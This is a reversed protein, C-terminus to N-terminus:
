QTTFVSLDNHGAPHLMNSKQSKLDLGLEYYSKGRSLITGGGICILGDNGLYFVAVQGPAIGRLPKDFVVEYYYSSPLVGTSANTTTTTTMPSRLVIECDVLPQLHRIRCKARITSGRSTTSTTTATSINFLEQQKASSMIWNMDEHRIYLRDSYLSPHHTGPCVYITRNHNFKDVVFYKQDVGSLKAGQGITSYVLPSSNIDYTGLICGDEINIITGGFGGDCNSSRRTPPLSTSSHVDDGVNNSDDNKKNDPKPPPPLPPPPQVYQHVFDGFQRRKGIFCIGMSERKNATPLQAEQAIERVTRNYYYNDNNHTATTDSDSSSSMTTMTTTSVIEKETKEKKYLNGLPFIVNTFKEQPVNSLFYSQDKTRDAAALLTPQISDIFDYLYPENGIAEQLYEPMNSTTTTTTNRTYEQPDYLRAYHGTALYDCGLTTHVYDKLVGFKIYRNCNVDPNPMTASSLSATNSVTGGSSRSEDSSLSPDGNGVSGGDYYTGSLANCYPEFVTNWYDSTFNM